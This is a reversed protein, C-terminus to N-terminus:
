GSVAPSAGPQVTPLKRSRTWLCFRETVILDVPADHPESALHPTICGSAVPFIRVANPYRALLADYFGGGYGLRGGSPSAALGPLIIADPPPALPTTPAPELISYRADAILEDNPRWVHFVLSRRGDIRPLAVTAGREALQGFTRLLDLEGRAPDPAYAYVTSADVLSLLSAGIRRSADVTTRQRQRRAWHRTDRKSLLTM